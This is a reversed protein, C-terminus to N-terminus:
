GRRWRERKGRVERLFNRRASDSPQDRSQPDAHQNAAILRGAIRQWRETKNANEKKGSMRKSRGGRSSPAVISADRSLFLRRRIPSAKM